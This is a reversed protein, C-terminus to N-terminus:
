RGGMMGGMMTLHMIWMGVLALLTVSVFVILIILLFEIGKQMIKEGDVRTRDHTTHFATKIPESKSNLL